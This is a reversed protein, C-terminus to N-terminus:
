LGLEFDLDFADSVEDGLASAEQRASEVVSDLGQAKVMKSDCKLKYMRTKAWPYFLGFSLGILVVNSLSVGLYKKWTLTSKTQAKEANLRNWVYNFVLYPFCVSILLLVLYPVLFFVPLLYISLTFAKALMTGGVAFLAAAGGGFIVIGIYPYIIESCVSESSSDLGANLNGYQINGYLFKYVKHLFESAFCILYILTFGAIMPLVIDKVELTQSLFSGLLNLGLPIGLYKFYIKNVEKVTGKFQFRVNRYSTNSINFKVATVFFFPVLAAALLFGVYGLFPNISSGFLYWGFLVAAIIRGKLIPLPRAHYDFSHGQFETARLFFNKSRIKAWASYIGLTIISLFTNVIWIKFYHGSEGNFKLSEFQKEPLYQDTDIAVDVADSM